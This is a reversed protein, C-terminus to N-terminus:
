QIVERLEERTTRVDARNFFPYGLDSMGHNMLEKLFKSQEEMSM